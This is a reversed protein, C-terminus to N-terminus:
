RLIKSGEVTVVGTELAWQLNLGTWHASLRGSQPDIEEITARKATGGEIEAIGKTRSYTISGGAASRQANADRDVLLVNGQARFGALATARSLPTSDRRRGAKTDREFEARLNDCTLSATRSRLRKKTDDDLKLAAELQGALAMDAGARHRMTVKGDFVAINNKNLFTMSDHWTFLTQSPGGGEIGPVRAASLVDGAPAAAVAAKARPLRYDEALLTGEGEVIMREDILDVHLMPGALRIRSLLRGRVEEAPKRQPNRWEAPLLSTIFPAIIGKPARPDEFASSVIISDGQTNLEALRKQMRKRSDGAFGLGESRDSKSKRGAQGSAGAETRPADIFRLNLSEAELLNNRSTVRVKGAFAGLNEKGRLWMEDNWSVVVPIPRDLAQGDIDQQSMWRLTGRGPVQVLETTMDMDLRRGRIYFTNHDVIADRNTEGIVLASKIQGSADFTCELSSGALNNLNQRTDRARVRGTAVLRTLIIQRRNRLQAEKARWIESDASLGRAKAFAEWRQREQDTVVRPVSAMDITMSEAARIERHHAPGQPLPGLYDQSTQKAVVNGTALAHLPLNQGSEDVTMRVEMRECTVVQNRRSSSSHLDPQLQQTLKVGGQAIITDAALRASLFDENPSASAPKKRQDPPPEPPPLFAVEVHEAEVTQTPMVARVRGDFMAHKLYAAGRSGTSASKDTDSKQSQSEKRQPRDFQLQARNQWHLAVRGAEDALDGSSLRVASSGKSETKSRTMKGPGEIISVGNPYDVFIRDRVEVQNDPGSNLVVPQGPLATLWVRRDQLHYELKGCVVNGQKADHLEVPKGEAILHFRRDKQDGAPMTEPAPLTEMLLDGSWRLEIVTEHEQADAPKTAVSQQTAPATGAPQSGPVHQAAMREQRGFDALVTLVDARLQGTTRAGTKQEAIVDGSFVVQYTDVRDERPAAPVNGLGLGDGLDAASGAPRSAAAREAELFAQAALSSHEPEAPAPSEPIVTQATLFHSAPQTEAPTDNIVEANGPITGFQELGPGRLTAREGRRIYLRKVRRDTESWALELGEGEITGRESEVTIHGNSQLRALDLDFEAEDMWIKVVAAPHDEPNVSQPNQRRWEPTTLDLFVRVHGRFSGRKPDMNEKDNGQLQIKGEDARVYALQGGPLLIRASPENLEFETDSIPQWKVAQFIIRAEGTKPDYLRVTPSAGPQAKFQRITLQGSPETAPQTTTRDSIPRVPTLATTGHGGPRASFTEDQWQYIAFVVCVLAFTSVALIIKRFM